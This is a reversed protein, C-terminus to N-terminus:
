FVIGTSPYNPAAIKISYTGQEYWFHLKGIPFPFIPYVVFGDIAREMGDIEGARGPGATRAEFWSTHPLHGHWLSRNWPHSIM